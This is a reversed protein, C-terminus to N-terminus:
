QRRISFAGEETRGNERDIEMLDDCKRNNFVYLKNINDELRNRSDERRNNYEDQRNNSEAHRSKLWEPKSNPKSPECPQKSPRTCISNITTIKRMKTVTDSKNWRRKWGIQVEQMITNLLKTRYQTEVTSLILSSSLFQNTM